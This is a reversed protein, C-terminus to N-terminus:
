LISLITCAVVVAAAGFVATPVFRRSSASPAPVEGLLAHLRLDAASAFGALTPAPSPQALVLIARALAPRTAGNAIAHEDAAIEIRSRQSEIWASGPGTRGLLRAVAALVVLKAPAHTSAHHHEHLLVASLEAEGLRRLVDDSCYIRPRLLGAVVATAAGPVLGIEQDGVAVPLATRRLRASLRHHAFAEVAVLVAILGVLAALLVLAAMAADRSPGASAAGCPGLMAAATSAGCRPDFVPLVACATFAAALAGLVVVLDRRRRRM